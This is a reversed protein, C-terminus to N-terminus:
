KSTKNVDKYKKRKIKIDIEKSELDLKEKKLHERLDRNQLHKNIIHNYNFRIIFFNHHQIKM